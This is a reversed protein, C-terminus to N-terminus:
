KGTGDQQRDTRRRIPAWRFGTSRDSPSGEPRSQDQALRSQDQPSAAGDSTVPPHPTLQGGTSSVIRRPLASLVSRAVALDLASEMQDEDGTPPIARSLGVLTLQNIALDVHNCSFPSSSQAADHAREVDFAFEAVDYGRILPGLLLDTWREVRRRLRDLAAAQRTPLRDEDTLLLLIERRAEMQGLFVHRALEGSREAPNQADRSVLVASWVRTLLEAVLIARGLSVCERVHLPPLARTATASVSMARLRAFWCRLRMRSSKWYGHLAETSVPQPSLIVDEGRLSVLAAVEATQRLNM